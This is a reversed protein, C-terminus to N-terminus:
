LIDPGVNKLKFSESAKAFGKGGPKYYNRKWIRQVAIIKDEDLTVRGSTPCLHADQGTPNPRRKKVIKGEDVDTESVFLNVVPGYMFPDDM